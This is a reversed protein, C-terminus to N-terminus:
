QDSEAFLDWCSSSRCNGGFCQGIKNSQCGLCGKFTLIAEASASSCKARCGALYEAYLCDLYKMQDCADQCGAVDPSAGQPNLTQYCSDSKCISNMACASFNNRTTEDVTGCLNRCQAQDEASLCGFFRMHDCAGRCDEVPDPASSQKCDESLECGNRRTLCDILGLRADASMLDCAASCEEADLCGDNGFAQCAERCVSSDDKTVTPKIHVNCAMDCSTTQVCGVFIDIQSGAAVACDNYCEAHAAADYCNFFRQKDCSEKCSKVQQETAKVEVKEPESGGEGGGELGCGLCWLACALLCSSRM